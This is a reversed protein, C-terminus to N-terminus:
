VWPLCPLSQQFLAIQEQNRHAESRTFPKTRRQGAGEAAVTPLQSGSVLRLYFRPREHVLRVIPGDMDDRQGEVSGRRFVITIGGVGGVQARPGVPDFSAQERLCSALRQQHSERKDSPCGGDDVCSRALSHPSHTLSLSLTRQWKPELRLGVEPKLKRQCEERELDAKASAVLLKTTEIAGAALLTEFVPQDQTESPQVRPWRPRSRNHNQLLHQRRHPAGLGLPEGPAGSHLQGPGLSSCFALCVDLALATWGGSTLRTLIRSPSLFLSCKLSESSSAAICLFASCAQSASLSALRGASGFDCDLRSVRGEM